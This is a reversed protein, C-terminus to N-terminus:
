LAERRRMFIVSILLFLATFGVNLGIAAFAANANGGYVIDMIATNAWKMPSLSSLAAVFGSMDTLPFYAGGIFAAVQAIILIVARAGDGQILFSICLGLSVSLIVETALVLFVMGYNEGWDAGYVFKSFLVVVLVCILNVFTCGIIKGVFIDTKSVPAASLRIGTKRTREAHFLFSASMMSYMAIMTSMAMAYYDMSNPKKNPNLSTERIFDGSQGASGVIAKAHTPSSQFAAAALSYRDAFATLMGQLINSEITNKSSGYFKIGEDGLEAYATYRNARVEEQGNMRAEAPVVDVGEKAMSEAFGNWGETLAPNTTSMQVLLKMDGVKAGSEFANSLATGLILMLVIPLALMFFFTSKERTNIKIEKLAIRGIHM